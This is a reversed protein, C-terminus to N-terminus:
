IRSSAVKELVKSVFPLNSVPRYNKLMNQDLGPKKLLPRILSSKYSAPIYGTELSFNIIKTLFPLLEPLCSKMLWTPIPDLECSKYPSSKIVKQIEEESAPAFKLSLKDSDFKFTDLGSGAQSAKDNRIGQIKDIFFDSFGQALENSSKRSPLSAETSGQLLHNTIKHLSKQDSGCSSVKDSYYDIKAHKLM